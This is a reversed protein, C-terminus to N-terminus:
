LESLLTLKKIKFSFVSFLGYLIRLAILAGAPSFTALVGGDAFSGGALLVCSTDSQFAFGTM